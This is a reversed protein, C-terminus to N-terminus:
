FAEDRILEFISVREFFTQLKPQRRLNQLGTKSEFVGMKPIKALFYNSQSVGNAPPIFNAACIEGKILKIIFLSIPMM